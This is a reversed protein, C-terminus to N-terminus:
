KILAKKEDLLLKMWISTDILKQLPITNNETTIAAENFLSQKIATILTKQISYYSLGIAEKLVADATSSCQGVFQCSAVIPLLKQNSNKYNLSIQVNLLVFVQQIFRETKV